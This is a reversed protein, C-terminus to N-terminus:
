CDPGHRLIPHRFHRPPRGTFTVATGIAAGFSFWGHWWTIGAMLKWGGLYLGLLGGPVGFLWGLTGFLRMPRDFFRQLFLVTMLDLIVRITRSIGYKSTGAVRPRHDVPVEAMTFGAFSIMEPYLAISNGM